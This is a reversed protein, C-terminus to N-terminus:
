GRVVKPLARVLRQLDKEELRKVAQAISVWERIRDDEDWEDYLYEVALPFVQVDCVGGWKEYSYAGISRKHIRGEVGAEEFAEKAASDAATLGAEILGKPVVWRRRSRSTVVLVQLGKGSWRYPMAASQAYRRLKVPRIKECHPGAGQARCAM